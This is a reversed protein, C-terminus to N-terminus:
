SKALSSGNIIRYDVTMVGRSLPVGLQTFAAQTLDIAHHTQKAPGLDILPVELTKGTAPCFVRVMTKWPLNPIPSGATSAVRDRLPLACGLLGPNGKTNIGSATQGDDGPDNDGGFWTATVNQVVIDHGEVKADFFWTGDGVLLPTPSVLADMSSDPNLLFQIDIAGPDEHDNHPVHQHGCWGKFSLWQDDTLRDQAGVPAFKPGASRGVGANAEIWRMLKAIGDLYEKPFRSSNDARGVIEIQIAHQRNTEVTGPRHELSRAALSIPLHQFVEFMGHEFTVTFHPWDDSKLFASRAGGFTSGETTHLVGRAPGGVFEGGDHARLRDQTASPNLDM